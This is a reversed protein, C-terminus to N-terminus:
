AAKQNERGVSAMNTVSTINMVPHRLAALRAVALEWSKQLMYLGAVVAAIAVFVIAFLALAAVLERVFYLQSAAVVALFVWLWVRRRDHTVAPTATGSPMSFETSAAFTTPMVLNTAM